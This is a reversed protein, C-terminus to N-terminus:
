NGNVTGRVPIENVDLSVNSTSGNLTTGSVDLVGECSLIRSELQSIRVILGESEDWTKNLEKFYLDIANQIYSKASDWGWGTQYTINTVIDITKGDVGVVTVIHGIPALGFGEGSHGVPDIANQVAEILTQTPVGFEGDIITLKVTGGGNWVPTVKVGGVSVGEISTTKEKYDAVNGGFAQSTMSNFYRERLAEVDEDDEAPILVETLEATALGDVYDIPILTGLHRNGESGATECTLKYVGDQVKETVAYNLADCSFRTGIPLELATPTFEGQLVAKTALKQSIGREAARKALYYLSATDAFTENLITDLAIYVNQLEIACPALADWIVSGERKDINSPVRSLMDEMISEFTIREYM